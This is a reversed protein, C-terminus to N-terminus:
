ALHNKVNSFYHNGNPNYIFNMKGALIDIEFHKDFFLEGDLHYAAEKELDIVLKNSQYYHVKPNSLHDGKPVKGLIELRQVINLKHVMCIDLLGDDAYATPTLYFDGAYRRGISITNLFCLSEKKEGNADIMMKQEKFFLLNKLIHWVYKSKGGQKVKGPEEYNEAAVQADFGLGMGNFFLHGNCRGVDITHTRAEFLMDWDKQEFNESLGPIQAFDNGTGAPILGMICQPCDILASAMENLTGDGGVAIIYTYNQEALEKALVSAHGKEKTHVIKAIINRQKLQKRLEEEIILPKGSGAVPNLIFGWKEQKNKETM